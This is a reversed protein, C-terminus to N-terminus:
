RRRLLKNTREQMAALGAVQSELEQAKANLRLNEEKIAEIERNRSPSLWDLSDAQYQTAKLLEVVVDGIAENDPEQKLIAAAVGLGYGLESEQIYIPLLNRLCNTSNFELSAGYRLYAKAEDLKDSQQALVGLDNYIEWQVSGREALSKLIAYADEHRGRQLLSGARRYERM